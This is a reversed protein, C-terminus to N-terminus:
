LAARSRMGSGLSFYSGQPTARGASGALFGFHGRGASRLGIRCFPRQRPECRLRSQVKGSRPMVLKCGANDPPQGMSRRESRATMM